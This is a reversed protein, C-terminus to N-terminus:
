ILITSLHCVLVFSNDCIILDDAERNLEKIVAPLSQQKPKNWYNNVSCNKHLEQCLLTSNLETALFTM